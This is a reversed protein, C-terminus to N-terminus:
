HLEQGVGGEFPEERGPLTQLTFLTRGQHPGVAIRIMAPFMRTLTVDRVHLHHWFAAAIHVGVLGLLLWAGYMHGYYFLNVIIEDRGVLTPLEVLGFFSVSGGYAQSALCGAVPVALMLAYVAGHVLSLSFRQARSGIGLVPPREVSFNWIMRLPVLLLVVLGVSKHVELWWRYQARAAPEDGSFDIGQMWYMLAATGLICCAM